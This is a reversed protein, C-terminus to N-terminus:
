GVMMRPLWLTIAPIYTIMLLTIGLPVYFPLMEILVDKMKVKAIDAVLFLALGMPPTLLGIMLNFIVVMGLHVPDVGAAMMPKAIIPAIVLIATTSDLFMGVILLLVNVLLLLAYPDTSISLMLQTMAQPVQEVSLVWGFLAAVAVILLIGASSRLTEIGAELLRPWTLERYFLWSILLAYAVTVAAIETPTFYGMLMGGILIIPAFLAPLAPFMDTWLQKFSPWREARPYGRKLALWATVAMLAAVCLLGPLIGGLLLQIVSSGTVTGYLILPISPPFIPGVIASASTVASAFAPNFGKEKMADIEIRGIGGIDALASGSMGAFILSGFINVQALGGPLRGVATDAFRYIHKSIGASNMLSGVFLFVPVAVLPFSDLAYLTRQAVMEIPLQNILLYAISPLGIALVVPFGLIFLLLFAFIVLFGSM